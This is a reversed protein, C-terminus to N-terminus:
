SFEPRIGTYRSLMTDSCHRRICSDASLASWAIDYIYVSLGRALREGDASERYLAPLEAYRRLVDPLGVKSDRARICFRIFTKNLKM